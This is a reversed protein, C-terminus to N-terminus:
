AKTKWTTEKRRAKGGFGQVCEEGMRAVHGAWRMGRLKIQRIIIPSSYIYPAGWQAVEELRRNSWGEKTWINDQPGQVKCCVFHKVTPTTLGWGVGLSFPWGRDATRSQKNFINAAVRWIQLGDRDVVQPRAIGHQCPVWKVRDRCVRHWLILSSTLNLANECSLTLHLSQLQVSIISSGVQNATPFERIRILLPLLNDQTINKTINKLCTGDDYFM